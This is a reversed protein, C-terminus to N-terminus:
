EAEVQNWIRISEAFVNRVIKDVGKCGRKVAESFVQYYKESSQRATELNFYFYALRKYVANFDNLILPYIINGCHKVMLEQLEWDYVAFAQADHGLEGAHALHGLFIEPENEAATQACAPLLNMRFELLDTIFGEPLFGTYKAMTGLMGLGGKKWYENVKTPKGHQIRIWGEKSLWHLTERITARTVGLEQALKREGPLNTGCAYTGDMISTLIKEEAFQAPRFLKTQSLDM